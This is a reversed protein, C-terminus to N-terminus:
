QDYCHSRGAFPIIMSTLGETRALRNRRRREKHKLWARKLDTVPGHRFLFRQMRHRGITSPFLSARASSDLIEHQVAVAPILQAIELLASIPSIPNFMVQDVPDALPMTRSLLKRAGGRSVIYAAAGGHWTKLAGLRYSASVELGSSEVVVTRLTTELKILDCQPQLTSIRDIIEGTGEALLVDDEFVAAFSDSGAMLREWCVRHSLFVGLEGDNLPQFTYSPSLLSKRADADLLAGEVAAIREFVVGARQAQERFFALREPSRDLNILYSKV